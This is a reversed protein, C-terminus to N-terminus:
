YTYDALLSDGPIPIILGVTGPPQVPLPNFVIQMHNPGSLIYDVNRQQRLGNRFLHISSFPAPQFNLTFSSNVGDIAGRPTEESVIGHPSQAFLLQSVIIILGISILTLGIPFDKKM